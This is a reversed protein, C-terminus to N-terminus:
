CCRRRRDGPEIYMDPRCPRLRCGTLTSRVIQPRPRVSKEWCNAVAGVTHFRMRSRSMKLRGRRCIWKQLLLVLGLVRGHHSVWTHASARFCSSCLGLGPAETVLWHSLLGTTMVHVVVPFIGHTPPKRTVARIRLDRELAEGPM